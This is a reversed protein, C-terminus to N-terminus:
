RDCIKECSSNVDLSDIYDDVKVEGFICLCVQVTNTSWTVMLAFNLQNSNYPKLEDNANKDLKKKKKIKTKHNFHVVHLGLTKERQEWTPVTM